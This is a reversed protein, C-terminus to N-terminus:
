YATFSLEKVAKAYAREYLPLLVYEMVIHYRHLEGYKERVGRFNALTLSPSIYDFMVKLDGYVFSPSYLYDFFNDANLIVNEYWGEDTNLTNPQHKYKKKMDNKVLSFHGQLPYPLKKKAM